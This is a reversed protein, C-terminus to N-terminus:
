GGVGVRFHRVLILISFSIVRIMKGREDSQLGLAREESALVGASIHHREGVDLDCMPVCVLSSTQLSESTGKTPNASASLSGPVLFCPCRESFEGGAHLFSHKTDPISSALKHVTYPIEHVRGQ